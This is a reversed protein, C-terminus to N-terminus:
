FLPWIMPTRVDSKALQGSASSRLSERECYMPLPLDRGDLKAVGQMCGFVDADAILVNM